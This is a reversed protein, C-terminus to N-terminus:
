CQVSIQYCKKINPTKNYKMTQSINWSNTHSFRLKLNRSVSATLISFSHILVKFMQPCYSMKLKPIKTVPLAIATTTSILLHQNINLFKLPIFKLYHKDNKKKYCNVIVTTLCLAM